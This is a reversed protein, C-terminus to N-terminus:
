RILDAVREGPRLALARMVENPKQFSEREPRELMALYQKIRDEQAQSFAVSAVLLPCVVLTRKM